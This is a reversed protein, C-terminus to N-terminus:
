LRRGDAIDNLVGVTWAEACGSDHGTNGCSTGGTNGHSDVYFIAVRALGFRRALIEADIVGPEKRRRKRSTRIM